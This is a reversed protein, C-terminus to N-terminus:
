SSCTNLIHMHTLVYGVGDQVKKGNEKVVREEHICGGGCVVADCAGDVPQVFWVLWAVGCRVTAAHPLHM